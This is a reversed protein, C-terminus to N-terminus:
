LRERMEARWIRDWAHSALAAIVGAIAGCALAVEPEGREQGFRVAVIMLVLLVAVFLLTLPLTRGRRYGSVGLGTKAKWVTYITVVLATSAVIGIIALPGPLAFSAVMGGVGLGYLPAYWWPSVARAALRQRAGSAAALADRPDFEQEM